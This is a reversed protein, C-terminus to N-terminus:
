WQIFTLRFCVPKPPLNVTKPFLRFLVARTCICKLYYQGQCNGFVEFISLILIKTFKNGQFNHPSFLGDVFAQFTTRSCCDWDLLRGLFMLPSWLRIHIHLHTLQHHWRSEIKWTNQIYFKSVEMEKKAWVHLLMDGYWFIYILAFM